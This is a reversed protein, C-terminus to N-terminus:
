RRRTTAAATPTTRPEARRLVRFIRPEWVRVAFWVSVPHRQALPLGSDAVHQENYAEAVQRLRSLLAVRSADSV